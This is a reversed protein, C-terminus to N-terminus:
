CPRFRLIQFLISNKEIREVRPLLMTTFQEIRDLAVVTAEATCTKVTEVAMESCVERVRKEDVGCIFTPNVMQVQTANDGAKQLQKDSM